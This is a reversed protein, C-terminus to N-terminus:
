KKEGEIWGFHICANYIGNDKNSDTVYDSAAKVADNANGMAIGIGAAKLMPIDNGGDGFAATESIDFGFYDAIFQIGVDKGGNVPVVDNFVDSWRANKAGPFHAIFEDDDEAPIFSNVQYTPVELCHRTPKRPLFSRSTARENMGDIYSGEDTTFSTVINNAEVYDCLVALGEPDFALKHIVENNYVIYQGNLAMVGDWDAQEQVFQTTQIARGTAIFLKVGNEKLKHLAEVASPTIEKDGHPILTGDIDFFAAKIM